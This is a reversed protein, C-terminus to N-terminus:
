RRGLAAAPQIMPYARRVTVIVAAAIGAKIVDGPIFAASALFARGLPIGAVMAVWNLGILYLVLIGGVVSFLFALVFTLRSWFRETLFGVTLATFVWGVLFGATPGAFVGIGGRGGSLLPLGVAVLVLFLLTSLTGRKAGLVGGALMPGLSQATIPVALVPITLPPFIGLMATLAAFLAIHVIDRTTM